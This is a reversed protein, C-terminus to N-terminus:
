YKLMEPPIHIFQGKNNHDTNAYRIDESIFINLLPKNKLFKAFIEVAVFVLDIRYAISTWHQYCIATLTILQNHLICYCFDAIEPLFRLICALRTLIVKCFHKFQCFLKLFRVNSDTFPELHSFLFQFFNRRNSRIHFGDLFLKISLPYAVTSDKTSHNSFRYLARNVSDFNRHDCYSNQM